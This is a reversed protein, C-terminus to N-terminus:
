AHRDIFAGVARNFADPQEISSIHAAGAIGAYEAGPVLAADARIGAVPCAVDEDGAVFLAPLRIEPLRRRYDLTKLAEAAGIFGEVSTALIM